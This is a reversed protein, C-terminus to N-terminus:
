ELRDLIFEVTEIEARHKRGFKRWPPTLKGSRDLLVYKVEQYLIRDRVDKSTALNIDPIEGKASYNNPNNEDIDTKVNQGFNSEVIKLSDIRRFKYSSEPTTM